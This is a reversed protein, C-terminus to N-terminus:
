RKGKGELKNLRENLRAAAALGASIAKNVDLAKGEPLQRVISAGLKSREMDQAMIGARPGKGHKEDKYSYDYPKLGDLMEDIDRRASRINKKLRRDSMLAAAGLTGGVSLVDGWGLGNQQTAADLGERQLQANLEAADRGFLLSLYSLAAQDNMGMQTLKAQMNALSTSQDLGAQQFIRQNEASMNALNTQQTLQANQSALDIDQGRMGQAVGALAQNAASQDQLAAQQAQGVGSTSLAGANRAAGRAALAANGGRQSAAAAMQAAIGQRVQRETALEGAGKQQGSAIGQLRNALDMQFQRSQNQAAGDLTTYGAQAVPGVVTRAAQPADRNQAGQMGAMAAGKYTDTQRQAAAAAAAAAAAEAERKKRAAETLAAWDASGAGAGMSSMTGM